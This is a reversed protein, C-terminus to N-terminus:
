AYTSQTLITTAVWNINTGAAGTVKIVLADNTDDAEATVDWTADDEAITTVTIAGVLSTTAGVRKILGEIKYAGANSGGAIDEKASINITFLAAQNVGITIRESSGDLFIETQTANTTSGRSTLISTQADGVASFKGASIALEGFRSGVSELGLSTSYQSTNTLKHGVCISNSTEFVINSSGLVFNGSSADGIIKNAFGGVIVSSSSTGISNQYGCGIFSYLSDERQTIPGDITNNVGGGITSYNGCVHNGSGGGIVSFHGMAYGSDAALNLLGTAGQLDVAYAGRERNLGTNGLFLGGSGLPNLNISTYDAQASSHFPVLSSVGKNTAAEESYYGHFGTLGDGGGGGGAAAWVIGSPTSTDVTLVWGNLANGTTLIHGTGDGTGILIGAENPSFFSMPNLGAVNVFDNLGSGNVRFDGFFKADGTLYSDGSQHLKGVLFSEGSSNLGGSLQEIFSIGRGTIGESVELSGTIQGNGNTGFGESNLYSAFGEGILNFSGTHGNQEILFEYAGSISQDIEEANNFVKYTAM